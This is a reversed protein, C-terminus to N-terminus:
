SANADHHAPWGPVRDLRDTTAFSGDLLHTPGSISNADPMGGAAGERGM